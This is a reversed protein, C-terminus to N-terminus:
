QRQDARVYKGDFTVSWTKGEDRSIERLPPRQRRRLRNQTVAGVASTSTGRFTLARGDFAGSLNLVGGGSGLWFQHWQRDAPL